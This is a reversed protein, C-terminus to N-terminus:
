DPTSGTKRDTDGGMEAGIEGRRLLQMQHTLERFNEINEAGISSLKGAENVVKESLETLTIIQEQVTEVTAGIYTMSMSGTKIDDEMGSLSDTVERNVDTIQSVAEEIQAQGEKLEQMGSVIELLANRVDTIKMIINGYVAGMKESSQVSRNILTSSEELTSRIMRSNDNSEEALKRIEEAVVAFGHGFEGAHAAEIAANMALMDTRDAIQEIVTIIEIINESSRSVSRLTTAMEHLSDTGRESVEVLEEIVSQKQEASNAISNVQATIEEAAASSSSIVETQKETIARMAEKSNGIKEQAAAANDISKLLDSISTSMSTLHESIDAAISENNEAQEQLREGMNFAEGMTDILDRLKSYQDNARSAQMNISKLSQMQMRFIQFIFVGAFIMLLLSVLFETLAEGTYQMRELVPQIRLFYQASHVAVGFGVVGIVQWRAYALLPATVFVPIMYTAQIYVDNPNSIERVLFLGAGALCFLLITGSSVIRFAKKLIGVIFLALVLTVCIELVGMLISGTTLRIVGLALFGIGLIIALIFLSLAKEQITVNEEAYLSRIYDTSKM